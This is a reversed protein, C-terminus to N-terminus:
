DVKRTVLCMQEDLSEAKLSDMLKQEVKLHVMLFDSCRPDALNVAKLPVKLRPSAWM